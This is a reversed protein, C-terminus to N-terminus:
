LTIFYLLLNLIKVLRQIVLPITVSILSKLKNNTGSTDSENMISIMADEAFKSEFSSTAYTIVKAGMNHRNECNKCLELNHEPQCLRQHTSLIFGEKLLSKFNLIERYFIFTDNNNINNM